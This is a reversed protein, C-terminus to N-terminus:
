PKIAFNGDDRRDIKNRHLDLHERITKRRDIMHRENAIERVIGRNACERVLEDLTIARRLTLYMEELAAFTRDAKSPRGRSSNSKEGTSEPKDPDLDGAWQVIGNGGEVLKVAHREGHNAKEYVLARYKSQQGDADEETHSSMLWAWRPADLMAHCGGIQPGKGARLDTKSPHSLLCVAGRITTALENLYGFLDFIQGPENRNVQMLKLIHDLMIYCGPGMAKADRELDSFWSTPTVTLDYRQAEFLPRRTGMMSIFRCQGNLREPDVGLGRCIKQARQELQEQTEESFLGICPCQELEAGLFPTGTALCVMLVMQLFSKGGGGIGGFIGGTEIPIWRDVLWKQDPIQGYAVRAWDVEKPQATSTDVESRLKILEGRLGDMLDSAAGNQLDYAHSAADETARLLGRRLALDVLLRAYDPANVITQAALALRGLYQSGDLERLDPDEDFAAKLTLHDALRGARCLKDMSAYIRRHVPEYFHEPRLFHSVTRWADNNVLVAGLIAQEAEVNNPLERFGAPPRPDFEPPQAPM